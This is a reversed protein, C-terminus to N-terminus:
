IKRAMFSCKIKLYRGKELLINHDSIIFKTLKRFKFKSCTLYKEETNILKVRKYITLKSHEM